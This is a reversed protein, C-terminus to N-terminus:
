DNFRVPKRNTSRNCVRCAVQWSRSLSPFYTCWTLKSSAQVFISNFSELLSFGSITVTPPACLDANQVVRHKLSLVKTLQTRQLFFKLKQKRLVGYFCCCLSSYFPRMNKQSLTHTHTHTHSVNEQINCISRGVGNLALYLFSM